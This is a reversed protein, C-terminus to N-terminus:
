MGSKVLQGCAIGVDNYHGCYYNYGTKSCDLLSTENGQCRYEETLISGNGEGFPAGYYVQFLKPLGLQSCLMQGQQYDFWSGCVTWWSGNIYIEV